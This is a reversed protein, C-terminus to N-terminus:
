TSKPVLSCDLMRLHHAIVGMPTLPIASTLKELINRIEKGQETVTDWVKSVVKVISIVVTMLSKEKDEDMEKPDKNLM